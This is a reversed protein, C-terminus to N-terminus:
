KKNNGRLNILNGFLILGAGVILFIDVGEQYLWWGLIAVLPVRAFDIQTITSADSLQLARALCYHATLAAIGVAILWPWTATSTPLQWYFMAIVSVFVLQTGVMYFLTTFATDKKLLQKTMVVSFAFGVASLLAFLQGPEVATFGPRVIVLIGIFGVIIAIIKNKTIKDGLYFVAIIATWIQMTFEISVLQALPILTLAYFWSFQAGFHFSNRVVHRPLQNTKLSSFGKWMAIPLLIVIGIASRFFMLMNVPIDATAERGAATMMLMSSFWGLMWLGTRWQPSINLKTEQHQLPSNNEHKVFALVKGM